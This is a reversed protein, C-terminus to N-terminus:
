LSVEFDAGKPLQELYDSLDADDNTLELTKPTGIEWYALTTELSHLTRNSAMRQFVTGLDPEGDRHCDLFHNKDIVAYGYDMSNLSRQSEKSYEVVMQDEVRANYKDPARKLRTTAMISHGRPVDTEILRSIPLELLNDGYTLIFRDGNVLELTQRLSQATGLPKPGDSKVCISAPIEAHSLASFVQDGRFGVLIYISAVGQSVLETIKWQLFPRGKLSVLVKAKGEAVEELRTGYGGALIVVPLSTM